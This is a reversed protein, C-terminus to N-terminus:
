HQSVVGLDAGGAGLEGCGYRCYPKAVVGGGGAYRAAGAAGGGGSVLALLVFIWDLRDLPSEQWARLLYPLMLGYGAGAGISLLRKCGNRWIMPSM